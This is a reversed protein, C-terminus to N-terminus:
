DIKAAPFLSKVACLLGCCCRVAISWSGFRGLSMTSFSSSISFAVSFSLSADRPRRASSTKRRRPRPATPPSVRRPAAAPVFRRPRLPPDRRPAAPRPPTRPRSSEPRAPASPSLSRTRPLPHLVRPRTAAGGRARRPAGTSSDRRRRPRSASCGHVLRPAAAPAVRLMRPRTKAGGRVRRPPYLAGGRVHRPPDTVSSALASLVVVRARRESLISREGRLRSMRSRALSGSFRVGSSITRKACRRRAVIPGGASQVGPSGIVVNTGGAGCGSTMRAPASPACPRSADSPRAHPSESPPARRGRTLRGWVRLSAVFSASRERRRRRRRRVRTSRRSPEDVVHSPDCCRRPPAAHINRPPAPVAAAVHINRRRPDDAAGVDVGRAPSPAAARRRRDRGTAGGRDVDRTSIWDIDLQLLINVTRTWQSPSRPVDWRRRRPKVPGRSVKRTLDRNLGTARM